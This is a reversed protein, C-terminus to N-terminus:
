LRLRLPGEKSKTMNVVCILTLLLYFIVFCYMKGNTPFFLANVRIVRREDARSQIFNFSEILILRALVAMSFVFIITIIYELLVRDIEEHPLLSSVYSFIVLLGGLVVLFLIYSFWTMRIRALFLSSFFTQAVLLIVVWYPSTVRILILGIRALLTYFLLDM